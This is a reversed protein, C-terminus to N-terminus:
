IYTVISKDVAMTNGSELYPNILIICFPMSKKFDPHHLFLKESQKSFEVGKNLM